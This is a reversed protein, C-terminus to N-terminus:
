PRLGGTAWGALWAVEDVPLTRGAEQYALSSDVYRESIVVAGRELAPRIVSAVHHARDAAYLLAEARPAVGSPGGSLLLTRIQGGLETSGPERPLIVGPGEARLGAR